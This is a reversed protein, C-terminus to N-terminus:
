EDSPVEKIGFKEIVSLDLECGVLSMILIALTLMLAARKFITINM